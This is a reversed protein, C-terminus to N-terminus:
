KVEPFSHKHWSLNNRSFKPIRRLRLKRPKLFAQLDHWAEDLSRFSRSLVLSAILSGCLLRGHGMCWAHLFDPSLMVTPCFGVLHSLAPIRDGWPLEGLTSLWAADDSLNTYSLGPLGNSSALCKWCIENVSWHRPMIFAYRLFEWDGKVCTM